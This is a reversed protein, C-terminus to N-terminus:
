GATKEFACVEVNLCVLFSAWWFSLWWAYSNSLPKDQLGLTRVTGPNPPAPGARDWRGERLSERLVLSVSTWQGRAGTQHSGGLGPDKDRQSSPTPCM